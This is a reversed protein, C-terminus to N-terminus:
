CKEAHQLTRAPMRSLCSILALAIDGLVSSLFCIPSCASGSFSTATFFRGRLVHSTTVMANITTAVRNTDPMQDRTFARLVRVWSVARVARGETDTTEGFCVEGASSIIRGPLTSGNMEEGM